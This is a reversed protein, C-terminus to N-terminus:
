VKAEADPRSVCKNVEYTLGGGTDVQFSGAAQKVGFVAIVSRCFLSVLTFVLAYTM